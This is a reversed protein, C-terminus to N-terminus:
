YFRSFFRKVECENGATVNRCNGRWYAHSCTNVSADYQQSWVSMAEDSTIKKYKKEVDSLPEHRVQFGTNPRYIQMMIDKHKNGSSKDSKRKSSSAGSDSVIAALIINQKGNRHQQSVYFGEEESGLDAWRLHSFFM